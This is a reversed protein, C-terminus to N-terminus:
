KLRKFHLKVCATGFEFPIKHGTSSNILIEITDFERRLVPLYHAPTFTCMKYTGYIYQSTDLPTIRLLSTMVDGVVQPEVIDCYVFLQSPLGLSLNVPYCGITHLINRYPQYGLQLCLTPSLRLQLISDNKSFVSINNALKDYKFEVEDKLLTNENLATLIHDINEYNTAKIRAKFTTVDSSQEGDITLRKELYIINNHEQVTLMTCPYQFEVLGVAWQGELKITKPLKVCFNSTKNEPFYEMSGNSLLTLYFSQENM